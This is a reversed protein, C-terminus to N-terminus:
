GRCGDGTRRATTGSLDMRGRSASARPKHRHYAAGLRSGAYGRGDSCRRHDCARLHGACAVHASRRAGAGRAAGGGLEIGVAAVMTAPVLGPDALASFEALWVGDAFHPRLERALALALATKGIGGAGTLTVLWHMTVLNLIESLEEERGILESVPEPVNTPPSVSAPRAGVAGVPEGPSAPEVHITGTFQYGRGSVTRILAREAGFAARLAAIQAALSNEEIIRGPWVRAILTERTVVAGRAEVLAMLVDFARGGLKIPQGDALVERREPFERFRGSTLRLPPDSTSNM